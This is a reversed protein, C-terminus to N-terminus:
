EKVEKVEERIDEKTSVKDWSCWGGQQGKFICTKKKFNKGIGPISKESKRRKRLQLSVGNGGELRQELIKKKIHGM